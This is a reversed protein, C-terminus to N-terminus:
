FRCKKDGKDYGLGPRICVVVRSQLRIQRATFLDVFKPPSAVYLDGSAFRSNVKDMLAPGVGQRQRDKRVCIEALWAYVNNSLVRAAGILEDGDFAFFGFAGPGFLKDLYDDGALEGAQKSLRDCGASEYIELLSGPDVDGTDTSIRLGEVTPPKAPLSELKEASLYSRACAVFEPRPDAGLKRYFGDRPPYAHIHLPVHAFRANIQGMLARGIGQNQRDKHVCMVPLWACVIDDSFVEAFGVLEAGDFAFFGYVGPGFLKELYDDAYKEKAAMALDLSEWIRAYSEFDIDQPDTSIRLNKSASPM